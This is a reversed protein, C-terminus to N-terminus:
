SRASMSDRIETWVLEPVKVGAQRGALLGFCAFQSNSNDSDFQGNKIYSWGTLKGERYIRAALLWDVNAQITKLDKAEGIESLVITQLAIAYTQTPKLNRLYPLARLIVPDTAKVGSNVLALTALCSAGGPWVVSIDTNEWNWDGNRNEQNKKLDLIGKDISSRVKDALPEAAVTPEVSSLLLVTAFGSAILRKAFM